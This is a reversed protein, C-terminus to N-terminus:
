YPRTMRGSADITFSQAKGVLASVRPAPKAPEAEIQEIQCLCVYGDVLFHNQAFPIAHVQKSWQEISETNKFTLTYDSSSSYGLGTKITPLEINQNETM